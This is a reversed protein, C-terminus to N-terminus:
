PSAPKLVGRAEASAETEEVGGPPSMGTDPADGHPATTLMTSKRWGGWQYYGWALLCIIISGLPFSIWIADAGLRPTLLHAFPVRVGWLALVMALLPPWVSGTSRVIGSFVFAVGFFIFGWLVYANIHAAIQLSPSHHPLFAALVWPELLYIILVPLGTFLSAYLAGSRATTEVRDMRGAGVNQAAMSSVAAGLAMAPMQVYTWLQVAAGYAAATHSGYQNVMSMMTVASLSIVIMQFAMPMGKFVLAKLITFDPILLKWERPKLVLVSGTRYLYAIMVGLTFTQSILTSAASGTVGLKPFPGVGIILLPNLIVDLTVALLSFYFPTRSDGAGRQAMMVFSFFYMFPMAAFIVQLYAVADARADAPTDMVALIWPTMAFGLLGVALSLVVFFSTSTGVVKKAVSADGGGIAQGIMINAAMSVGFVAGLMLFLIQNANSTATLAAEGLVHSVWIANASGNLSQLINSGLVPMSFAILTAGIPGTTLDPRGGRGAPARAPTDKLAAM